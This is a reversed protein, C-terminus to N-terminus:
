RRREVQEVKAGRRELAESAAAVAEESPEASLRFVLVNAGDSGAVGTMRRVVSQLIVLLVDAVVLAGLVRYFGEKEVENAVALSVLCAVLVATGISALYIWRVSKTDGARRRSTTAATQSSAAAASAVVALLKWAGEDSEDWDGWTLMMAIAFALGSLAIVTWALWRYRGQDLLVGAPLAFLSFLSLLLTTLLIRETTEDFEAFLLIGIALLGTASLSAVLAVFFLRKARSLDVTLRGM